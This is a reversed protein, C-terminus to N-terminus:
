TRKFKYSKKLPYITKSWNEIGISLFHSTIARDFDDKLERTVKVPQYAIFKSIADKFDIRNTIVDYDPLSAAIKNLYADSDFKKSM